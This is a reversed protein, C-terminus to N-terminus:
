PPNTLKKLFFIDSFILPAIGRMQAGARLARARTARACFGRAHANRARACFNEWACAHAYKVGITKVTSQVMYLRISVTKM